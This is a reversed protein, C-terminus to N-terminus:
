EDGESLPEIRPLHRVDASKEIAYVDSPKGTAASHGATAPYLLPRLAGVVFLLVVVAASAFIANRM